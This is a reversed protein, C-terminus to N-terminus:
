VHDPSTNALLINLGCSYADCVGSPNCTYLPDLQPGQAPMYVASGVSTECYAIKNCCKLSLGPCVESYRFQQM